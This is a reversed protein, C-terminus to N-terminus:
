WMPTEGLSGDAKIRDGFLLATYNAVLLFKGSPHISVFCPISGGSDV